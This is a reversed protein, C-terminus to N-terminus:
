GFTLMSLIGLLLVAEHCSELLGELPPRLLEETRAIVVIVVVVKRTAHAAASVQVSYRLILCSNLTKSTSVVVSISPIRTWRLKLTHIFSAYSPQLSKAGNLHM